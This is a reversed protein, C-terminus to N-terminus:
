HVVEKFGVEVVGLSAFAVAYLVSLHVDGFALRACVVFVIGLVFGDDFVEGHVVFDLDLLQPVLVEEPDGLVLACL